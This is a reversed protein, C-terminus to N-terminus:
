PTLGARASPSQEVVAAPVVVHVKAEVPESSVKTTGPPHAGDVDNCGASGSGHPQFTARGTATSPHAPVQRDRRAIGEVEVDAAGRGVYCDGAM